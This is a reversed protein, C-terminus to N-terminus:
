LQLHKLYFCGKLATFTPKLYIKTATWYQEQGQKFIEAVSSYRRTNFGSFLCETKNTVM